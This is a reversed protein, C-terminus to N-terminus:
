FDSKELIWWGAAYWGAASLFTAAIPKWDLIMGSVFGMFSAQIGGTQPFIYYFADLVRHIAESSTLPYLLMVRDQLLRAIVFEYLFAGIIAIATNRSMIGLFSVMGYFCIFSFTMGLPAMLFRTEWTGTKAGVILWLGGLFYLINLFIALGAGAARGALVEARALPKSLYLDVTGKELTDPMLGATALIGFLIVGAFLGGAASAEFGRVFQMLMEGNSPPTAPQGFIVITVGDPSGTTSVGALVVLLFLTSIGALVLMTAKLVLERATHFALILIKM